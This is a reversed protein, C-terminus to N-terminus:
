KAENQSIFMECIRGLANGNSNENPSEAFDGMGKSVQLAQKVEEAQSDHLTFTIQQFPAKDGEPLSPFEVEDVKSCLGEFEDGTFGTTKIDFGETNIETIMEELGVFDWDTWDGSKNDSIARALAMKRIGTYVICPFEEIGLELGATYRHNGCIIDWKKGSQYVQLPNQFGHDKILTKLKDTAKTDVKQRPNGELLILQDKSIYVIELKNHPDKNPM